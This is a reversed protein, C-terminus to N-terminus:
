WVVINEDLGGCMGCYEEIVRGCGNGGCVWGDLVVEIAAAVIFQMVIVLARVKRTENV